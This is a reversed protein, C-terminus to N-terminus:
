LPLVIISYNISIPIDGFKQILEPTMSAKTIELFAQITEEAKACVSEMLQTELDKALHKLIVIAFKESEAEANEKIPILLHHKPNTIIAFVPSSIYSFFSETEAFEEMKRAVQAPVKEDQCFLKFLM